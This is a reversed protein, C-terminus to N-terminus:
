CKMICKAFLDIKQRCISTLLLLLRVILPEGRRARQEQELAGKATSTRNRRPRGDDDPRMAHIPADKVKTVRQRIVLGSLDTKKRKSTHQDAVDESPRKLSPTTEVTRFFLHIYVQLHLVLVVPM